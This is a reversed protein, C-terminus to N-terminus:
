RRRDLNKNSKLLKENWEKLQNELLWANHAVATKSITALHKTGEYKLAKAIPKLKQNLETVEIGVVTKTRSIERRKASPKILKWTKCQAPLKSIPAPEIGEGIGRDGYRIETIRASNEDFYKCIDQQRFALGEPSRFELMMKILAIDEDSVAM